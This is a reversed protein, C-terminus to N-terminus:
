GKLLQEILKQVEPDDIMSLYQLAQRRLEPDKEARFIAILTAGDEAVMLTTLVQQKIERDTTGRYLKLLEAGADVADGLIPLARLVAMQEARDRGERLVRLLPAAEGSIAYAQYIVERLEPTAMKSIRELEAVGDMAGLALIAERQLQPDEESTALDAVTKRADAAILAHVVQRKTESDAGRYIEMLAATASDEGMIGLAQIAERQLQPNKADRAARLVIQQARPSDTQAVVFLAHQKLRPSHNGQLFAELLTVAREPEAQLLADLAYLKLEEDDAELAAERRSGGLEIELAQADDLWASSPFDKALRKLTALAAKSRNAKAEAYAKWYLARDVQASSQETLAQFREIAQQYNGSALADQGQRYLTEARDDSLLAAAPSAVGALLLGGWCVAAVLLRMPRHFSFRACTRRPDTNM